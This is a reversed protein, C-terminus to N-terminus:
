SKRHRRTRKLRRQRLVTLAVLGLIIIVGVLILGVQSVPIGREIYNSPGPSRECTPEGPRGCPCIVFGCGTSIPVSHISITSRSTTDGFKEVRNNMTDIVYVNGSSDVAVGWPGNYQGNSGFQGDGSGAVPAGCTAATCTFGVSNFGGASNTVCNASQSTCGGAWGDFVGASSFREVRSNGRDTVYVNGSSDVAVGWPVNFQGNGSGAPLGGWQTVYTGTSTFKQVRPDGSDAVYVNGSSDVAVGSPHNFQSPGCVNSCSSCAGTTCGLQSVYTGTSTFKEVRNNNEDAVYVNGSSDVAVGAPATFQGNSSGGPYCGNGVTTCGWALVYTYTVGDTSTFKEVRENLTDAVYVNGSSDVAVGIPGNFQGNSSGQSGWKTLYTCTNCAYVQPIPTPVLRNIPQSYELRVPPSPTVSLSGSVV